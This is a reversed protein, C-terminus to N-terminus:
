AKCTLSDKGPKTVTVNEPSGTLKWGDKVYPEGAAPALLRTSTGDKTTKVDVQTDGNFFTVFLLSNDKCRFSKEAKMSPPLAVPAKNALVAAMPDPNADIVETKPKNNCAALPLLVFAAAATLLPTRM